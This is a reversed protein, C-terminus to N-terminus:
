DAALVMEGCARMNQCKRARRATECANEADDNQYKVPSM